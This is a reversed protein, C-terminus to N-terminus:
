RPVFSLIVAKVNMKPRALREAPSETTMTM